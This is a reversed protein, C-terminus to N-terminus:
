ASVSHAVDNMKRIFSDIDENLSNDYKKNIKYRVKLEELTNSIGNAKNKTTM